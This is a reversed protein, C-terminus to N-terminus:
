NPIFQFECDNDYRNIQNSKEINLIQNRKKKEKNLIEKECNFKIIEASIM